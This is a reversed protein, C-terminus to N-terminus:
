EDAEGGQCVFRAEDLWCQRRLGRSCVTGPAREIGSAETGSCVDAGAAQAPCGVRRVLEDLLWKRVRKRLRLKGRHPKTMPVPSYKHEGSM